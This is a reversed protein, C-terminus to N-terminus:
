SLLGEPDRKLRFTPHGDVSDSLTHKFYIYFWGNESYTGLCDPWTEDPHHDVYHTPMPNENHRGLSWIAFCEQARLPSMQGCFICPLSVFEHHRWYMRREDDRHETLWYDAQEQDLIPLYAWHCSHLPDSKDCTGWSKCLTVSEVEEGRYNM